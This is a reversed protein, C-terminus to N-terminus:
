PMRNQIKAEIYHQLHRLMGNEFQEQLKEPHRATDEMDIKMPAHFRYEDKECVIHLEEEYYPVGYRGQVRVYRRTVEIRRISSYPIRYTRFLLRFTVSTNGARFSAPMYSLLGLVAFTLLLYGVLLLIALGEQESGPATSYMFPFLFVSGGVMCLAAIIFWDSKYHFKGQMAM